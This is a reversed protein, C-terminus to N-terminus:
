KLNGTMETIITIENNINNLDTHLHKIVNPHDIEQIQKMKEYIKQREFLTIDEVNYVM